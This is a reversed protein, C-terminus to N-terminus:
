NFPINPNHLQGPFLDAIDIYKGKFKKEVTRAASKWTPEALAQMIYISLRYALENKM